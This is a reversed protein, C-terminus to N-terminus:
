TDPGAVASKSSCVEVAIQFASELGTIADDLDDLKVVLRYQASGSPIASACAILTLWHLGGHRKSRAIVAFWEGTM